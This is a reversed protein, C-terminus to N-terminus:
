QWERATESDKSPYVSRWGNLIATELLVVPDNGGDRLKEIKKILLVKAKETMPHRGKKRMELFDEFLNAPIWEPLDPAQKQIITKNAKTDMVKSLLKNDSKIVATAKKIVPQKKSLQCPTQSDKNFQNTPIKNNDKKIVPQKKSLRCWVQYNKNFQYTPIKNNDKKIVIKNVILSKLARSVNGKTLGTAKCFQCNAIIDEKKSWGYTKRLVVLLCQMQEGPIRFRALAEMIENSVATYGDEKQLAM